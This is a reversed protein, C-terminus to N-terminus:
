PQREGTEPLRIQPTAPSQLDFGPASLIVDLIWELPQEPDRPKDPLPVELAGKETAAATPGPSVAVGTTAIEETIQFLVAFAKQETVSEPAELTPYRQV